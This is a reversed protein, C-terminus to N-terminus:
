EPGPIYYGGDRQEVYDQMVNAEKLKRLAQQRSLRAYRPEQSSPKWRLCTSPPWVASAGIVRSEQETQLRVSNRCSAGRLM